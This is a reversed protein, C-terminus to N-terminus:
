YDSLDRVLEDLGLGKTRARKDIPNTSSPLSTGDVQSEIFDARSTLYRTRVRGKQAVVEAKTRGEDTFHRQRRTNLAGGFKNFLYGGLAAAGSYLAHLGFGKVLDGGGYVHLNGPIKAINDLIEVGFGVGLALFSNIKEQPTEADALAHGAAASLACGGVNLSNQVLYMHDLVADLKGRLAAQAVDTLGVVAGTLVGSKILNYNSM